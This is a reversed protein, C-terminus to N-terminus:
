LSLDNKISALEDDAYRRLKIEFSIKQAVGGKLFNSKDESINLIIFDGQVFGDRDIMNYPIGADAMDRLKDLSFQSDIGNFEPYIVGPLTVEDNAPGLYQHMARKGVRDHQSWRQASTRKFTQYAATKLEFTFEGLIMMM